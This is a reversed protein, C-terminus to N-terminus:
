TLNDAVCHAVLHRLVQNPTGHEPGHGGPPWGLAQDMM